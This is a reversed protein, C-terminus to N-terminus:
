RMPIKQTRNELVQSESYTATSERDASTTDINIQYEKTTNHTIVRHDITTVGPEYQASIEDAVERYRGQFSRRLYVSMAVLAAAIVAFLAAYELMISAKKHKIFLPRMM